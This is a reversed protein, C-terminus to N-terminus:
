IGPEKVAQNKLIKARATKWMDDPAADFILAPDYDITDWYNRGIELNLQLPGWGSYGAITKSKHGDPGAIVYTMGTKVPGGNWAAEGRPPALPKNVIYGYAQFLDHHVIYIVSEEFPRDHVRPSAVLLKGTTGKYMGNLTPLAILFAAGLFYWRAKRPTLKM